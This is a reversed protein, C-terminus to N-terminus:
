QGHMRGYLVRWDREFLLQAERLGLAGSCVQGHAFNEVSDKRRAAALPQAWLNRLSDGGGVERPVLHDVQVSTHDAVGYEAYVSDHMWTPVNRPPLPFHCLVATDSGWPALAGPTLRANPLADGSDPVTTTDIPPPPPIPPKPAASCGVLVIAGVAWGVWHLKRKAM